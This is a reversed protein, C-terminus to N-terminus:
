NYLLRYTKKTRQNGTGYYTAHM